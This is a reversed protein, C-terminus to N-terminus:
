PYLTSRLWRSSDKHGYDQNELGSVFFLLLRLLICGEFYIFLYICIKM